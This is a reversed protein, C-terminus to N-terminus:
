PRALLKELRHLPVFAFALISFVRKVASGAVAARLLRGSRELVAKKM